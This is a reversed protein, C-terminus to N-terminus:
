RRKGVVYGIRGICGDERGTQCDAGQKEDLIRKKYSIKDQGSIASHRTQALHKNDITEARVTHKTNRWERDWNRGGYQAAAKHKCREELEYVVKSLVRVESVIGGLGARRPVPEDTRFADPM